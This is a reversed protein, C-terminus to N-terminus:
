PQKIPQHIEGHEETLRIVRTKLWAIAAKRFADPAPHKKPLVSNGKIYDNAWDNYDKMEYWLRRKKASDQDIIGFGKYKISKHEGSDNPENNFVAWWIWFPVGWEMNVMANELALRAQILEAKKEDVKYKQMIAVITYGIEGIGVRKGTIKRPQLMSEVYDLDKFLEACLSEANQPTRWGGKWVSIGQIEYSSISAYDVHKLHPLVSNVMRKVGRERACRVHNVEVYFYVNVNKHPVAQKADEVAKGRVNMWEIMRKIKEPSCDKNEGVQKAGLIWDGEWNGIMFTKGSNNYNTLLHKTFEYFDKYVIKEKAPTYYQFKVQGHAWFFAVRYPLDLIEKYLQHNALEKLTMNDKTSFSQDRLHNEGMAIKIMDSGLEKVTHSAAWLQSPTSGFLEKNVQEPNVAHPQQM